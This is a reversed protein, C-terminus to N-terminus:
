RKINQNLQKIRIECVTLFAAISIILGQMVKSITDIAGVDSQLGISPINITRTLIYFIFLAASGIIAIIYPIKNYHKVKLMWIAIPIYAIDVILFFSMENNTSAIDAADKNNSPNAQSIQKYDEYAVVFYIISVSFMLATIVYVIISKHQPKLIPDNKMSKREKQYMFIAYSCKKLSM